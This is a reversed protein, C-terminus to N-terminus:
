EPVPSSPTSEPQGPRDHEGVPHVPESGGARTGPLNGSALGLSGLGSLNLGIYEDDDSESGSYTARVRKSRRLYAYWFGVFFLTKVVSITASPLFRDSAAPPLIAMFLSIAFVSYVLRVVLFAKAIAVANPRETWLCIGAFMGLMMVALSVITDIITATMLGPLRDALRSAASYGNALNGLTYLPGLIVLVICFFLLWGKVGRYETSDPQNGPGNLQLTTQPASM